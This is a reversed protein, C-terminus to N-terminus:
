IMCTKLDNKGVIWFNEQNFAKVVFEALTRLIEAFKFCTAHYPERKPVSGNITNFETIWAYISINAEPRLAICCHIVSSTSVSCCATPARRLLVFWQSVTRPLVSCWPALCLLKFKFNIITEKQRKIMM